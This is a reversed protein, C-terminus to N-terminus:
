RELSAAVRNQDSALVQVSASWKRYGDLEMRVAHAGVPVSPLKLPTKGIDRGDLFVTAGAPRSEVVLASDLRTPVVPVKPM